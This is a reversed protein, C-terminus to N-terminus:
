QQWRASSSSSNNHAAAAAAIAGTRTDSSRRAAHQQQQAKHRQRAQGRTAGTRSFSGDPHNLLISHYSLLVDPYARAGGGALSSALMVCSPLPSLRVLWLRLSCSRTPHRPSHGLAHPPPALRGRAHPAPPPYGYRVTSLSSIHPASPPCRLLPLTPPAPSLRCAVRAQDM